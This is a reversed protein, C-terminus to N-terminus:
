PTTCGVATGSQSEVILCREGYEGDYLTVDGGQQTEGLHELTGSPAETPEVYSETDPQYEEFQTSPDPDGGCAALTLVLAGAALLRKM